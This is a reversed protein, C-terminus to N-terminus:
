CLRPVAGGDHGRRAQVRHGRSFREPPVGQAMECLHEHANFITWFDRFVDQLTMGGTGGLFEQIELVSFVQFRHEFGVRQIEKQLFVSGKINFFIIRVM